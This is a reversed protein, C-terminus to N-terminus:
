MLYDNFVILNIINEEVSFQFWVNMFLNIFLNVYISEYIPQCLSLYVQYCKHTLLLRLPVNLIDTDIDM